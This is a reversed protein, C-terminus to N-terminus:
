YKFLSHFRQRFQGNIRVPVDKGGRLEIFDSLIAFAERLVPDNEITPGTKDEDMVGALAEEQLKEMAREARMRERRITENLSVTTEANAKRVHEILTKSRQYQEDKALRTASRSRLTEMYPAVTETRLYDARQVTSYPLAGPLQDEGLELADYISSVVIDPEVGKLQTTGGNIRYFCATTIRNAGYVASDGKLPLVTQVTGKGHTKSDGVIIARGYDQFAAAVIESASASNRNILVVIPKQFAVHGMGPLVDVASSNRVQVAPGRVFMGSMALAEMLSGGGNNRLDIVLGDVQDENFSQIEKLLDRSMSAAEESRNGHVAGAYFAPIRVYGYKLEQGDAAKVTEVRGSVAQEELRIEDRVLDVIKTRTGTKDSVPIVKLRVTTGKPGRIKRVTKSMPKHCVDEIPGDGQGVGIIRDGPQLRIDRTDTAAPAGPMLEMVRIMGDDMRLTAGIGHLKLDMGMSFDEFNMPSMYDTHPDYSTAVATLYFQLVTETDMENFTDYITRYRRRLVDHVSLEKLAESMDFTTEAKAAEKAKEEASKNAEEEADLERSLTLALFENKLCAYWMKQQEEANKPREAKRRKWEFTEDKTFDFPAEAELIKEVFVKRAHLRQQILTMLDYGLSLDGARMMDDIQTRKAELAKLDDQTLLLRDSDFGDILNNWAVDSLRDDFAERSLHQSELQHVVSKAIEPYNEAPALAAELSAVSLWGCAAFFLFKQTTNKM